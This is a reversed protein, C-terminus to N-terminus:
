NNRKKAMKYSLPPPQLHHTHFIRQPRIYNKKCTEMLLQESINQKQKKNQQSFPGFEISRKRVHM